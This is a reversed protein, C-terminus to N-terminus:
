CNQKRTGNNIVGEINYNFDDNLFDKILFNFQQNVVDIYADPTNIQKLKTHLKARHRNILNVSLKKNLDDM